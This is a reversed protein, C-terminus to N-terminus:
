RPEVVSRPRAYRERSLTIIANRRGAESRIPPSTTARFPIPRSKGEQISAVVEYKELGLFHIRNMDPAFLRELEEGDPGGVRFAIISGANGFVAERVASRAQGLYQHALTLCLHY